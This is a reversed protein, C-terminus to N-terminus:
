RDRAGRLSTVSISFSSSMISTSDSQTEVVDNNERNTNKYWKFSFSFSSLCIILTYVTTEGANTVTGIKM